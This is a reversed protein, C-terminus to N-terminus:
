GVKGKGTWKEKNTLFGKKYAMKVIRKLLDTDAPSGKFIGEWTGGIKVFADSIRDFESPQSYVKGKYLM